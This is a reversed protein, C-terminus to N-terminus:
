RAIRALVPYLDCTVATGDDHRLTLLGQDDIMASVVKAGPPGRTGSEGREGPKGARGQHAMMLWGEGPCPGPDDLRAAFSSGDKAVIDLTRYQSSANWIGRITFSRGEAGDRGAEAVCIWDEHPPEEATDRLACWTSGHHTIIASEYHVGRQWAKIATFKGPPGAEGREGPPGMEGREGPEGRVGRPGAEGIEGPPGPIGQEGPPGAIAEGPFGREGPEGRAGPPGNQVEALRAAITREAHLEIASMRERMEALMLSMQLRLEREVRAAVSGLEAALADRPLAVSNATMRLASRLSNAQPITAM